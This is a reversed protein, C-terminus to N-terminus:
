TAQQAVELLDKGVLIEGRPSIAVYDGRHQAELPRGYAEYLQVYQREFNEGSQGKTAAMPNVGFDLLMRLIAVRQLTPLCAYHACFLLKAHRSPRACPKAM